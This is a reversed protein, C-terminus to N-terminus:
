MFGGSAALSLPTDGLDPNIANIDAHRGLLVKVVDTHGERCAEMLPTNKDENMEEIKAGANLLVEVVEPYGGSCALTLPSELSYPNLMDTPTGRSIMLKCVDTHGDMAAEMLASYMELAVNTKEEDTTPPNKEHFDMIATVVGIHGKYAALTLASEQQLFQFCDVSNM